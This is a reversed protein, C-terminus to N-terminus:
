LQASSVAATLLRSSYGFFFLSELIWDGLASM